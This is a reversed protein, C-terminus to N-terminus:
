TKENEEITSVYLSSQLKEKDGVTVKRDAMGGFRGHIRERWMHRGVERGVIVSTTAGHRSMLRRDERESM